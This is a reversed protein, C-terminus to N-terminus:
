AMATLMSMAWFTRLWNGKRIFGSMRARSNSQLKAWRISAASRRLYRVVACCTPRSGTLKAYFESASTDPFIAALQAALAAKDGLIESPVVRISYGKMTRALPVGNRDVIDGRPPVLAASSSRSLGSEGLVAFSAFRLIIVLFAGAFLMLLIMLRFHATAVAEKNKGTHLVKRPAAIITTM